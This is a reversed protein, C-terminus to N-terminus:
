NFLHNLLPTIKAGVDERTAGPHSDTTYITSYQNKLADANGSFVGHSVWLSLNERPTNIVEALGRFTFGGDCIDDVVLLRGETPVTECEFKSLKGTQFDRVKTAKFMPLGLTDAVKQTRAVAGADPAIVGVYEGLPLVKNILQDSYVVTLNNILAPMVPSHPDFCIVKDYGAENILGAYVKAGFPAGRDQRAGPLYPIVATTKISTQQCMNAWQMGWMYDDLNSGTIYAVTPLPLSDDLTKIHDEGGPFKMLSLNTDEVLGTETEHYLTIM